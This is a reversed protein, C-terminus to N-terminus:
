FREIIVRGARDSAFAECRESLAWEKSARLLTRAIGSGRWEHRVYLGEVYGTKEGALGAVDYRISLEAVAILTGSEDETVLVACPEELGGEFFAAIEKAHDEVGDPWMDCRMKEWAAVDTQRVERIIM